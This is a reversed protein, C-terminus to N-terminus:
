ERAKPPEDVTEAAPDSQQRRERRPDAQRRSQEMGALAAVGLALPVAIRLPRPLGLWEVTRTLLPLVFAGAVLLAPL